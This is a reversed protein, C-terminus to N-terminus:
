QRSRKAKRIFDVIFVCLGIIIYTYYSLFRWTFVSWFVVSEAVSTLILLFANELVGSNGPTPVITVSMSAFVNMTMIAFMLEVGPVIADGGLAVVVFYPLTMSLFPECICCILLLIAHLPKHAMIVIASRFDNAGRKAKLVIADKNKVIHLKHGLTLTWRTVAETMKPFIAFAIITLPILCNTGFGIWGMVTFFNRQTDDTVYTELAGRNFIMLCMCITLWMLMNFCFKISIIATSEGGTFGKKYLYHVQFPQGGSSFPTINDYYKGWLGTKLAIGYNFKGTTAHIIVFYKMSDLLMMALLVAVATLAYDVRINSFIEAFSKQSTEPINQSLQYMSFVTLALVVVFFLTSLWLKGRKPATVERNAFNSKAWELQDDRKCNTPSPQASTQEASASPDSCDTAAVECPENECTADINQKTKNEDM